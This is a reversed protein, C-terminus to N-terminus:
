NPHIKNMMQNFQYNCELSNDTKNYLYYAEVDYGFGYLLEDDTVYHGYERNLRRRLAEINHIWKKHDKLFYRGKYAKVDAYEVYGLSLALKESSDYAHHTQVALANPYQSANAAALLKDLKTLYAM